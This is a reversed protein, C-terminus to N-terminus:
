VQLPVLSVDAIVSFQVGPVHATVSEFHASTYARKEAPRAWASKGFGIAYVKEHVFSASREVPGSADARADVSAL